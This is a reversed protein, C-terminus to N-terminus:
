LTPCFLLIMVFTDCLVCIGLVRGKVKPSLIFKRGRVSGLEVSMTPCGGEGMRRRLFQVAEARDTEM